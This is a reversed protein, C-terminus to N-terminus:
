DYMAGMHNRWNLEAMGAGYAGMRVGDSWTTKDGLQYQFNKPLNGIGKLATRAVYGSWRVSSLWASSDASQMPYANMLTSPTLGLIHIWLKPYDRMREALTALLRTRMYTSAQVINGVCIRDYESALEDFYDWGDNLPHYVPIPKM